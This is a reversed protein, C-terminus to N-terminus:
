LKVTVAWSYIDSVLQRQAASFARAVAEPAVSASPASAEFARSALIGGGRSKLLLAQVVLRVQPQGGTVDLHFREIRGTLRVDAPVELNTSGLATIGGWRGFADILSRQLLVPPRDVWRAGTLYQVGVDSASVAIRESRLEPGPEMEEIRISAFGPRAVGEPAALDSLPLTFLAPPPGDNGLSVLPGCSCTLTLLALVVLRNAKM